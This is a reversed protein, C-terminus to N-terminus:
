WACRGPRSPRSSRRAPGPASPHCRIKVTARARRGAPEGQVSERIARLAEGPRAADVRAFAPVGTLESTGFLRAGESTFATCGVPHILAAHYTDSRAREDLGLEEGIREAVLCTRLAKEQPFGRGLDTALSIAALLEALRIQQSTSLQDGLAVTRRRCARAHVREGHVRRTPLSGARRMSPPTPPLQFIVGQRCTFKSGRGIGQHQGARLTMLQVPGMQRSHM